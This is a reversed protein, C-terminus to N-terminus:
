SCRLENSVMIMRMRSISMKILQVSHDNATVNKESQQWNVHTRGHLEMDWQNDRESRDCRLGIVFSEISCKWQYLNCLSNWLIHWSLQKEAWIQRSKFLLKLYRRANLPVSVPEVLKFWLRVICCRREYNRCWGYAMITWIINWLTRQACASMCAVYVCIPLLALAHSINKLGTKIERKADCVLTHRTFVFHHLTHVMVRIIRCCFDNMRKFSHWWQM